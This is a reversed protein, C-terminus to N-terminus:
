NSARLKQMSKQYQEFRKASYTLYDFDISSINAQVINWIIWFLHSAAEFKPIERLMEMVEIETPETGLYFRLYTRIFTYKEEDNPCLDFNV